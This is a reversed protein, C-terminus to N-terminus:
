YLVGKSIRVVIRWRLKQEFGSSLKVMIGNRNVQEGYSLVAMYINCKAALQININGWVYGLERAVVRSWCTIVYRSDWAWGTVLYWSDLTPM